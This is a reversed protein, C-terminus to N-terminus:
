VILPLERMAASGMDMTYVEGDADEERGADRLHQKVKEMADGADLAVVAFEGVQHLENGKEHVTAHYRHALLRNQELYDRLVANMRTQWGDGMAKFSDLVAADFRISVLVKTVDQVPRGRGRRAPKFQALQKDTLPQNDPDSLAAATIAADEDATPTILQRAKNRRAESRRAEDTDRNIIGDVAAAAAAEQEKNPRKLM